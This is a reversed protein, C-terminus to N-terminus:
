GSGACPWPIKWKRGITKDCVGCHYDDESPTLIKGKILGDKCEHAALWCRYPSTGDAEQLFGCDKCARYHRARAPPDPCRPAYDRDSDCDPCNFRHGKLRLAEDRQWDAETYPPHEKM